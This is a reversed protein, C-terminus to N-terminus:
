KRLVVELLAGFTINKKQSAFTSRAVVVHVKEVDCSRFTTRLQLTKYMKVEFLAERWVVACVKKSMEVELHEPAATNQVNQSPFASRAVVAHLQEDRM